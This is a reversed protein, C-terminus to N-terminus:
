RGFCDLCYEKIKAYSDEAIKGEALDRVARDHLDLVRVGLSCYEKIKECADKNIRGHAFDSIVLDHLSNIQTIADPFSAAGPQRIDELVIAGVLARVQSVVRRSRTLSKKERMLSTIYVIQGIILGMSGIILPSSSLAPPPGGKHFAFSADHMPYFFKQDAPPRPPLKVVDGMRLDDYLGHLIAAVVGDAMNSSCALITQTKVTTIGLSHNPTTTEATGRRGVGGVLFGGWPLTTVEAYPLAQAIAPALDVNLLHLEHPEIPTAEDMVARLDESSTLLFVVDLRGSKLDDLQDRLPYPDIEILRADDKKCDSLVGYTRLIECAIENQVGRGAHFKATPPLDEIQKFKPEGNETSGVIVYLYSDYLDAIARVNLRELKSAGSPRIGDQVIILASPDEDLRHLRAETTRVDARPRRSDNPMGSAEDKQAVNVFWKPLQYWLKEGQYGKREFLSAMLTPVRSAAGKEPFASGLIEELKAGLKGTQSDIPGAYIKVVSALNDYFCVHGLLVIAALLIYLRMQRMFIPVFAMQRLLWKEESQHAM